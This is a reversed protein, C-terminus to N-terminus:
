AGHAPRRRARLSRAAAVVAGAGFLIAGAPAPVLISLESPGARQIVEPFGCPQLREAPCYTEIVVVYAPFESIGETQLLLFAFGPDIRTPDPPFEADPPLLVLGNSLVFVQAYDFAPFAGFATTRIDATLSIGPDFTLTGAYRGGAPGPLSQEVFRGPALQLTIAAAMAPAAAGLALMAALGFAKVM